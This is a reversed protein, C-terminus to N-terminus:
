LANLFTQLLEPTDKASPEFEAMSGRILDRFGASDMKSRAAGIIRSGEPMQGSRMRRFLAPLIKRRSLDGTAGFIVLDFQDVPIVRSVM